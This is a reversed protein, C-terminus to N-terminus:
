CMKLMEQMIVDSDWTEKINPLNMIKSMLKEQEMGIVWAEAYSINSFSVMSYLPLWKEPYLQAFKQEIKKQLLFIPDATKDRMVIFNHLSLDQVGDGNPKRIQSFKNLTRLMDGEHEEILDDLVRCDEFSANMGQGYFPVTAHASDGILVCFDKVNWPFCKFIGLSATPNHLFQEVLDPILPTFDKFVSNFFKTIDKPTKLEKFSDKGEFPSFLTCTYSGDLNPLAILMFNGRPWIHLANKEIKHSGDANAPILLEKYGHEIYYQSYQFRDQKMMKTRIASFAGDAGIILDCSVNSIKADITNEFILKPNELDVDFCKQNFFLEAGREQALNMLLVNLEGRPVSYIAQDKNGYFQDTLNGELDHMVRKPMAISIEKVHADVGVKELATWGRVSLALNISRGAVLVAKRMDARREYLRVKFGRKLMYLACLSGALGAGVIIVDKRM